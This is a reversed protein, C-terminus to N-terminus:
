VNVAVLTGAFKDHLTQNRLDRLPYFLDFLLFVVAFVYLGPQQLGLLIALVSIPVCRLGSQRWTIPDGTNADCVRTRAVMNGVTQRRGTALMVVLYVAQITITISFNLALGVKVAELILALLIFLLYDVYTAGIRRGWGALTVGTAEDTPGSPIFRAAKTGRNTCTDSQLETGCQACKM